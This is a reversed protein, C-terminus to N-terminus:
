STFNMSPFCIYPVLAAGRTERQKSLILEGALLEFLNGTIMCDKVRGTVEGKEILYALDLNASFDGTLTNSQGLGLFQDILIAEHSGSIINEIDEPGKEITVNSFSPSPLSAFGRSGNGTPEQDLRESYKLDNIFTEIVGRNILLKKKRPIGEDDFPYSYPSDGHTPDDTITIDSSFIKEGKKNAFPSIGKWVSRGNLGGTVIRLLGSAAKPTLIIRRKGSSVSKVTLASELRNKVKEELDVLGEPKLSSKGEWVDIKVGDDMILTASVSASYYSNRYSIDLGGSNVLRVSGTSRNISIDLTLHPFRRLLSDVIERGKAAENQVDFLDIESSYPDFRPPERHPLEFNETEGYVSTAEARKVAMNIKGPDNTYSFGTKGDLNLRIGFGRNQKEMITHLRNNKYSVPLNDGAVEIIDYWRCKKLISRSEGNLLDMM